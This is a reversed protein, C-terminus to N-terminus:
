PLYSRLEARKPLLQSRTARLKAWNKGPTRGLARLADDYDPRRATPPASHGDIRVANSNKATSGLTTTPLLTARM